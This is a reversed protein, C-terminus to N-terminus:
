KHYKIKKERKLDIISRDRVFNPRFRLDFRDKLVKLINHSNILKASSLLYNLKSRDIEFGAYIIYSIYIKQFVLSFNVRMFQSRVFLVPSFITVNKLLFNQRHSNWTQDNVKSLM